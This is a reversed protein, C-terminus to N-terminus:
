LLVTIHELKYVAGNEMHPFYVADVLITLITFYAFKKLINLM